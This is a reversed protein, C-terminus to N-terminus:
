TIFSKRTNIRKFTPFAHGMNKKEGKMLGHWGKMPLQMRVDAGVMVVVELEVVLVVVFVGVPRSLKITTVLVDRSITLM